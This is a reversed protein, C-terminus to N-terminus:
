AAAISRAGTARFRVITVVSGAFQEAEGLAIRNDPRFGVRQGGDISAEWGNCLVGEIRRCAADLAAKGADSAEAFVHCTPFSDWRRVLRGADGDPHGVEGGDLVVVNRLLRGTQSFAEPTSGPGSKALWRNWCVFGLGGPTPSTLQWDASLRAVIAQQLTAM